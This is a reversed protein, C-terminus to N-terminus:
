WLNEMAAMQTRLFEKMVAAIKLNEGVGLGTWPQSQYQIWVIAGDMAGVSIPYCIEVATHLNFGLLYMM